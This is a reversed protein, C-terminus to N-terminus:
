MVSCNSAEPLASPAHSWELHERFEVLNGFGAEDQNWKVRDMDDEGQEETYYDECFPCLIRAQWEGPEPPMHNAIAVPAFVIPKEEEKESAKFGTAQWNLDQPPKM